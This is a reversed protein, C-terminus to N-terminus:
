ETNMWEVGVRGREEVGGSDRGEEGEGGGQLYISEKDQYFPSSFLPQSLHQHWVAPVCMLVPCIHLYVSTYPSCQPLKLTALVNKLLKIQRLGLFLTLRIQECRMCRQTFFKTTDGTREMVSARQFSIFLYLLVLLLCFMRNKM